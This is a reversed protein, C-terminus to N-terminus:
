EYEVHLQAASAAGGEFAEATRHGSGTIILVMANGSAWGSRNVIAQVLASLDPTRQAPGADGVGTWAPVPSWTVSNTTRPRSSVNFKAGSFTPANDAAQAQFTLSTTESQTEDAQFQVYAARITAGRPITLGTFRLGVKQIGADDVLELDDNGRVVKGSPKEEADDSGAAIRKDLSVIGTAGVTISISKSGSAGDSDSVSATITHAGSSLNSRTFSGGTGIAGDRSSTWALSSTLNGDEPDSATGSFTISAGTAFTAGDPPQAITVTPPANSGGGGGSCTDSGSDTYNKGAVPVFDWDYSGANLTLKLVGHSTDNRAESNAIPSGFAYLSAGGTGVVFQRIGNADAVGTPRQKKFREYNHEHGNLIVDASAEFLLQWFDQVAANGGHITGSSYRPKHWIALTCAAPHAALDSQLWQGQPSSRTCGGVQSCESNLVVIHWGGLDYSYYGKNPDGAAAGFYNFYGTAGATNYDHNGSVPRTRSKHRGWTPHYCNTFQASTGDPYVNDGTTYVTGAIGDLLQATAEDRDHSCGSTDGAGVLVSPGAAVSVTMQAEHSLGAADKVAARIQHIGPSLDTRTVSGGTGLPGDLDSTWSLGQTINGDRDHAATGTLTVPTGPLFEAGDAPASIRIIPRGITVTVRAAATQGASDKVTATITHAGQRLDTRTLLTGSGLPGELSSHWEIGLSLDGDVPDTATGRFAVVSGPEFRAGNKPTAIKLQPPGDSARTDNQAPPRATASPSRDSGEASWGDGFTLLVSFALLAPSTKRDNGSRRDSRQGM